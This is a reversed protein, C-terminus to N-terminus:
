RCLNVASGCLASLDYDKKSKASGEVSSLVPLAFLLFM